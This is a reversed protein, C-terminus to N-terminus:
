VYTMVLHMWCEASAPNIYAHPVDAGFGIADGETLEHRAGAVELSLSGRTVVLNERTGPQHAEADERGVHRM